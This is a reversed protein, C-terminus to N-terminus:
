SGAVRPRALAEAFEFGEKLVDDDIGPDLKRAPPWTASAAAKDNLRLQALARGYLSFASEPAQPRRRLREQGEVRRRPSTPGALSDRHHAAGEDGKVAEKCDELALPLDIRSARADLLATSVRALGRGQTAPSGSTSSACRKPVQPLACVPSGDRRASAGPPLAADLHDLDAQAGVVITSCRPAGPAGSARRRSTPDLRLAEDLDALESPRSRM